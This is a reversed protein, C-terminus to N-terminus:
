IAEFSWTVNTAAERGEELPWVTAVITNQGTRLEEVARGDGPTFQVLGLEQTVQLEDPPIEVGNVSLTGTWSAILDIGVTEQQPVQSNRAPLLAEVYEDAGGSSLIPDDDNRDLALFAAAFAAIAATLVLAAIVKFRTTYLPPASM